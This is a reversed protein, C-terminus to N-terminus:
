HVNGPRQSRGPQLLLQWTDERWIIHTTEERHHFHISRRALTVERHQM